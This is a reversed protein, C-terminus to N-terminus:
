RIDHFFVAGLFARYTIAWDPVVGYVDEVKYLSSALHSGGAQEYRSDMSNQRNDGLFFIEGERVVYEGFDYDSKNLYYYAYSEEVYTYESEGAYCICLNGDVCKVKDGELAILRKILFDTSGCEPYSRVDVIIVDGRELKTNATAYRMLLKDGDQLTQKMSAGDVVIGGFNNIWYTRLGVFLLFLCLIIAYFRSNDKKEKTHFCLEYLEGDDLRKNLQSFNENGDVTKRGIRM